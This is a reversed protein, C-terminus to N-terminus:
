WFIVGTHLMIYYFINHFEKFKKLLFLSSFHCHLYYQHKSFLFYSELWHKMVVNNLKVWKWGTEVHKGGFFPSSFPFAALIFIPKLLCLCNYYLYLSDLPHGLVIFYFVSLNFKVFITTQFCLIM